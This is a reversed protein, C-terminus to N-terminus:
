VDGRKAAGVWLLVALGIVYVSSTTAMVGVAIGPDRAMVFMMATFTIANVWAGLLGFVIAIGDEGGQRTVPAQVQVPVESVPIPAVM